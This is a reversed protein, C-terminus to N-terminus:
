CRRPPMAAPRDSPLSGPREETAAATRRWAEIVPRMQRALDAESGKALKLILRDIRESDGRRRLAPVFLRHQEEEPLYAEFGGNDDDDDAEYPYTAVLAVAEIRRAGFPGLKMSLGAGNATMGLRGPWVTVLLWRGTLVVVLLLLAALLVVVAALCISVLRGSIASSSFDLGEALLKAPLALAVGCVAWTLARFFARGRAVPIFVELAAPASM